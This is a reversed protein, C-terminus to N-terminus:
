RERKEKPNSFPSMIQESYISNEPFRNVGHNIQVPGHISINKGKQDNGKPAFTAGFLKIDICSLLNILLKDKSDSKIESNFVRKYMGVLDLPNLDENLRKFYFVKEETYVRDIYNRITYKLAKDTAYVTGDPLTRPQHTFDANYNSNISKVIVCGFVRNEFSAKKNDTM